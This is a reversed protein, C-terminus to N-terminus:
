LEPKFGYEAEFLAKYAAPDNTRLEIRENQPLESLKAYGGAKAQAGKIVDTPKQAPKLLALTKALSEYGASKGLNVFHERQDTTIQRNQIAQDVLQELQAYQLQQLQAELQDAKAARQQLAEIAQSLEDASASAALGLKLAIQNMNLFPKLPRLVIDTEASALNLRKGEHYLALADDNSGIDVVSVERLKSRTITPRTQGQVLHHPDDSQEVIDIGMSVMRLVGADWKEKIRQAFTDNQDFVLRGTLVEDHVELEQVTGIPLVEDTTGKWPRSHMWLLVPNRRYQELDIGSTLVRTGYSNLAPTNIVVKYSM